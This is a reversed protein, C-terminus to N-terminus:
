YLPLARLGIVKKRLSWSIEHSGETEVSFAAINGQFYHSGEEFGQGIECEHFSKWRM